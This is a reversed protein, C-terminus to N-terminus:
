RCGGCCDQKVETAPEGLTWCSSNCVEKDLDKPSSKKSFIIDWQERMADTLAGKTQIKDGTIDNYSM